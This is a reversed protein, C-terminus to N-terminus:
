LLFVGLLELRHPCRGINGGNVIASGPVIRGQKLLYLLGVKLKLHVVANFAVKSIVPFFDGFIVGIVPKINLCLPRPQPLIM